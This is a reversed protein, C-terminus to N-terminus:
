ELSLPWDILRYSEIIDKGISEIDHRRWKIDVAKIKKEADFAARMYSGVVRCDRCLWALWSHVHCTPSVHGLETNHSIIYVIPRDVPAIQSDVAKDEGRVSTIVRHFITVTRQRDMFSIAVQQLLNADSTGTSDRDWNRCYLYRNSRRRGALTKPQVSGSTWAGILVM